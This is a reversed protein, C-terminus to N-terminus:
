EVVEVSLLVATPRYEKWVGIETLELEWRRGTVRVCSLREGNKTVNLLDGVSPVPHIGGLDLLPIAPAYISPTDALTRGEKLETILVRVRSM